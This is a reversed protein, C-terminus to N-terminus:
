RRWIDGHEAVNSQAEGHPVGDFSMDVCSVPNAPFRDKVVVSFTSSSSAWKWRGQTVWRKEIGQSYLKLHHYSLSKFIKKFVMSVRHRRAEVALKIVNRAIAEASRAKSKENRCAEFWENRSTHNFLKTHAISNYYHSSAIRQFLTTATEMWWTNFEDNLCVNRQLRLSSQAFVVVWLGTRLCHPVHITDIVVIMGHWRWRIVM